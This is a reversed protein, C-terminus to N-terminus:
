AKPYRPMQIPADPDAAAAASAAAHDHEAPGVQSWHKALAHATLAWRPFRDRYRAARRCIEDPTVGPTAARIEAVAKGYRFRAPGTVEDIRAGCAEVLARFVPADAVDEAKAENVREADPTQTPKSPNEKGEAPPAGSTQILLVRNKEIRTVSEAHRAASSADRESRSANRARAQRLQGLAREKASEGNHREFNPFVIVEGKVALWGVALMAEAFGPCRAVESVYELPAEAQGDVCNADAWRWVRQLKGLVLDHEVKLTRAIRAVEPKDQTEYDIKFWPM